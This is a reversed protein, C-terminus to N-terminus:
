ANVHAANRSISHAVMYMARCLTSQGRFEPNEPLPLRAIMFDDIEAIESSEAVGKVVKVESRCFTHYMKNPVEANNFSLKTQFTSLQVGWQLNLQPIVNQPWYM